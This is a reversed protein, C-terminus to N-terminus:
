GVRGAAGDVGTVWGAGDVGGVLPLELLFLLFRLLFLFAGDGGEEWSFSGGAEDGSLV